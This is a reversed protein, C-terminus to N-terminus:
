LHSNCEWLLDTCKYCLYCTTLSLSFWCLESTKKLAFLYLLLCYASYLFHKTIYFTSSTSAIFHKEQFLALEFVTDFLIKFCFLFFIDFFYIRTSSFRKSKWQYFHQMIDKSVFITLTSNRNGSYILSFYLQQVAQGRLVRTCTHNIIKTIINGTKIQQVYLLDFTSSIVPIMFVRHCVHCDKAKICITKENRKKRTKNVFSKYWCYGRRIVRIIRGYFVWLSVLCGKKSHEFM